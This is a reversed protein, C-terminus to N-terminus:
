CTGHVMYLARAVVIYANRYPTHKISGTHRQLEGEYSHVSRQLRELQVLGRDDVLGSYMAGNWAHTIVRLTISIALADHVEAQMNLIADAQMVM